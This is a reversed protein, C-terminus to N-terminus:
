AAFGLMPGPVAGTAGPAFGSSVTIGIMLVVWAAAIGYACARAAPRLSAGGILMILFTVLVASLTLAAVVDLMPNRRYICRTACLFVPGNSGRDPQLLTEGPSTRRRGGLQSPRKSSPGAPRPLACRGNGGMRRDNAASGAMASSAHPGARSPRTSWVWC